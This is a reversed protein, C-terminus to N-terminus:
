LHSVKSKKASSTSAGEAGFGRGEAGSSAAGVGARFGLAALKDKVGRHHPANQQCAQFWEIAQAKDNATEYALGIEFCLNAAAEGRAGHQLADKFYQAAGLPDGKERLCHGILELSGSTQVGASIADQFANIAEDLRGIEKYLMGEDYRDQAAAPSLSSGSTPGDISGTAESFGDDDQDDGARDDGTQDKSSELVRLLQVARPYGPKRSLVSTLVNRAEQFLETELLFAAEDLEDEIEPDRGAAKLDDEQALELPAGSENSDELADFFAASAEDIVAFLSAISPEEETAAFPSLGLDMGGSPGGFLTADSAAGGALPTEASVGGPETDGVTLPQGLAELSEAAQQLFLNADGGFADSPELEFAEDSEPLANEDEHTPDAGLALPDGTLAHAALHDAAARDIAAQDERSPAGSRRADFDPLPVLSSDTLDADSISEISSEPDIYAHGLGYDMADDAEIEEPEVLVDLTGPDHEDRHAEYGEDTELMFHEDADIEIPAPEDHAARRAPDLLAPHEPSLSQLATRAQWAPEMEGRAHHIMMIEAVAEAAHATDGMALFIDRMKERAVINDADLEIVRSLHNLAKERLGYKIFVDTETLIRAVSADNASTAPRDFAGSARKAAPSPAMPSSTSAPVPASTPASPQLTPARRPDPPPAPTRAYGENYAPNRAPTEDNSSDLILVEDDDPLYDDVIELDVHPPPAPAAPPPPPTRPPPPRPAFSPARPAAARAGMSSTTPGGLGLGVGGAGGAGGAFGGPPQVPRSGPPTARSREEPVDGARSLAPAPTPAMAWSQVEGPSRTSPAQVPITPGTPHRTAPSPAFAGSMQRQAPATTPSPMGVPEVREAASPDLAAIQQLVERARDDQGTEQYVRALERYVFVTKQTQGLNSFAQALLTLTESDKANAKFCQQLKALARKSDGKKLYFKALDKLVDVRDPDHYVLREAVKAFDDWRNQHKLVEAAREFEAIAEQRQGERSYSEALKIRSAVNEADIEAMRKLVSLAAKKDGREDHIQAASQYQAMAESTLGLHEYLEALKLTVELHKADHKLIQKYVAVAKLFFGQESYSEAVQKYVRTANERDGKKSYVDGLKLLTRVDTPDETVLKQLERIAKDWQGKAIYKQAQNIIKSKNAM